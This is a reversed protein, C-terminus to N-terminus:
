SGEKEFDEFHKGCYSCYLQVLYAPTNVLYHLNKFGCAPCTWAKAVFKCETLEIKSTM